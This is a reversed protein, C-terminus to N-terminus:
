YSTNHPTELTSISHSTLTVMVMTPRGRFFEFICFEGNKGGKVYLNTVDPHFAKQFAEFDTLFLDVPCRIIDTAQIEDPRRHPIRFHTLSATVITPRRRFFIVTKKPRKGHYVRFVAMKSM